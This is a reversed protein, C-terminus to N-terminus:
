RVYFDWQAIMWILSGTSVFVPAALARGWAATKYVQWEAVFHAFAIVYTALALLYLKEDEIYLSAMLRIVSSLATWTGFTRASLPTVAAPQAKYIQRTYSLTTYAQASNLISM